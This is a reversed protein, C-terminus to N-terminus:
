GEEKADEADSAIGDLHRRGSAEDIIAACNVEVDDEVEALDGPTLDGAEERVERSVDSTRILTFHNGSAHVALLLQHALTRMRSERADRNPEDSKMM